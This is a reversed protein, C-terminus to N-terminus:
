EQQALCLKNRVEQEKKNCTYFLVEVFMSRTYKWEAMECSRMQHPLEVCEMLRWSTIMYSVVSRLDVGKM